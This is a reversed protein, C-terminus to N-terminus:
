LVPIIAALETLDAITITGDPFPNKSRPSVRGIFHCGTKEAAEYDSLSDGVFLVQGPEYGCSDLIDQTLADKRCPAGLVGRFYFSMRRRKVIDEIEDQPTASVVFLDYETYNQNLFAVAGDAFPANVVQEIVINAFQNCLKELEVESLPKHLVERYYYKFKEFRSVGGNALHYDVVQQVVKTGYGEFLKAFAKTKVDVSEVLVGDFDFIVAKIMM